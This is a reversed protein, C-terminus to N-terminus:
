PPVPAVFTIGPSTWMSKLKRYEGSVLAKNLSSLDVGLEDAKDLILKLFSPTGVYGQPKVHAMVQVQLETQGVGAPMVACGLAQAGADFM